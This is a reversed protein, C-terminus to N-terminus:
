RKGGPRWAPAYDNHSNHTVQLVKEGRLDAVFLEPNGTRDSVFALWQGDPSWTPHWNDYDQAVAVATAAGGGVGVWYVGRRGGHFSELALRTGDPSWVPNWGATGGDIRAVARGEPNCVIIERHGKEIGELAVAAGGPQKQVGWAAMGEPMQVDGSWLVADGSTVTVLHMRLKGGDTPRAIQIAYLSAGDRWVPSLLGRKEGGWVQETDSELDYVCMADDLGSGATYALHKSDASWAPRRGSDRAQRLARLGTGDARVVHIATGKDPVDSEMALWQGDPSWVPAGDRRGPGVRIVARTTVDVVSVCQDEQEVGSVFAIQGSPSAGAVLLLLTSGLIMTM